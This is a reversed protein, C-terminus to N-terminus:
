EAATIMKLKLPSTNAPGFMEIYHAAALAHERMLSDARAGQGHELADVIMHHQLHSLHLRTFERDLASMDVALSNISAFPLGNNLSLANTIANNGPADVIAHHFRRNFDHFADVDEETIYGKEFIADGEDLCEHLIVKLERTMGREAILRAALGELVGRVEVADKIERDNLERVKYGRAGAKQLLGEQELLRIAVRVPTRSVGLKEALPIEPIREGPQLEGSIIM